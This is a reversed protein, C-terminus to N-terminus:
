EEKYLALLRNLYVREQEHIKHWENFHHMAVSLLEQWKEESTEVLCDEECEKPFFYWLKVLEKKRANRLKLDRVEKLKEEVTNKIQKKM